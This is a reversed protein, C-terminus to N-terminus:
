EHLGDDEVKAIFEDIRKDLGEFQGERADHPSHFTHLMSRLEGKAREWAQSRLMRSVDTHDM